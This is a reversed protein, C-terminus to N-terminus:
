QNNMGHITHPTTITSSVTSLKLCATIHTRSEYIGKCTALTQNEAWQHTWTDTDSTDDTSPWTAEGTPLIVIFTTALISSVLFVFALFWVSPLLGHLNCPLPCHVQPTHIVGKKSTTAPQCWLLLQLFYMANAKPLHDHM